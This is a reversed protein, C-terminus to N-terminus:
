ALVAKALSGEIEPTLDFGQVVRTQGTVIDGGRLQLRGNALARLTEVVLPLERASGRRRLEQFLPLAEGENERIDAINRHEVARWLLDITPGRLPFTSYTVIAGEDLAATVLHVRVGGHDVRPDILQWTVEQWTGSPQGPAAPHLNLMAHGEFLPATMVLMYGALMGLDYPYSRLLDAVRADYDSRWTPLPQGM